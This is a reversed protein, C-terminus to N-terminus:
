NNKDSSNHQWSVSNTINNTTFVNGRYNNYDLMLAAIGLLGNSKIQNSKVSQCIDNHKHVQLEVSVPSM